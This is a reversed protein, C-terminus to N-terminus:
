KGAVIKNTAQDFYGQFAGKIKGLFGTAVVALAIVALLIFYEATSQGSNRRKM